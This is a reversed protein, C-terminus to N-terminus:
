PHRSRISPSTIRATKMFAFAFFFAFIIGTLMLLIDTASGFGDIPYDIGLSYNLFTWANNIVHCAIPIWLTRTVAFTWSLFLGLIFYLHFYWPNGHLLAFLAATVIIGISTGWRNELPTQCIGRFFIEECVGPLLCLVLLKVAFGFNGSYVMMQDMVEHYKQPLPLLSGSASAAYDILMAVPVSMAAAFIFAPIKPAKFRLLKSIDFGFLLLMAIPLGAIVFIENISIGLDKSINIMIYNAPLQLLSVIAVLFFILPLGPLPQGVSFLRKLFDSSSKKEM